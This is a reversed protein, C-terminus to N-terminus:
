IRVREHEPEVSAAAAHMRNLLGDGLLIRVVTIVMLSSLVVIAVATLIFGYIMLMLLILSQAGRAISLVGACSAIMVALATALSILATGPTSAVFAAVRARARGLPSDPRFRPAIAGIFVILAARLLRKASSPIAQTSL